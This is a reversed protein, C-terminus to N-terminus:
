PQLNDFGNTEKGNIRRTVKVYTPFRRMERGFATVTKIPSMPNDRQWAAFLDLTTTFAGPQEKRLLWQGFADSEAVVENTAEAVAKPVAPLGNRLYREAGVLLRGLTEGRLGELAEKFAHSREFVRMFPVIRLRSAFAQSYQKTVPPHNGAIWLKARPLFQQESKWKGAATLTDGGTFATVRSVDFKRDQPLEPSIVLRTSAGVRGLSEDADNKRTGALWTDIPVNVAYSGLTAAVHEVFTSKGADPPGYFVWLSKERAIGTAAYSAVAWLYEALDTDGDTWDLFVREIAATATVPAVSTCRSAYDQPTAVHRAGSRLDVAVAGGGRGPALLVDPAQDLDKATLEYRQHDALLANRARVRKATPLANLAPGLRPATHVHAAAGGDTAPAWVGVDPTWVWWPRARDDPNRRLTCPSAVEIESFEEGVFEVGHELLKPVGWATSMPSCAAAASQAHRAAHPHGLNTLLVFVYQRAFEPTFGFRYLVRGCGGAKLNTHEPDQFMEVVTAERWPLAAGPPAPAPQPAPARVLEGPRAWERKLDLPRGENSRWETDMRIPVYAAQSIARLHAGPWPCASAKLDAATAESSLEVWVRWRPLVRGQKDVRLHTDTTHAVYSYEALEAWNPGETADDYDIAVVRTPECAADCRHGDPIPAAVWYGASGKSDNMTAHDLLYDRLEAFAGEWISGGSTHTIPGPFYTIRIPHQPPQDRMDLCRLM